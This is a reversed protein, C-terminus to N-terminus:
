YEYLIIIKDTTNNINETNANIANIDITAECWSSNEASLINIIEMVEKKDTRIVTEIPM